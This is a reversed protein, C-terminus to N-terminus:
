VSSAAEQLMNQRHMQQQQLLHYYVQLCNSGNLTEVTCPPPMFKNEFPESSPCPSQTHESSRCEDSDIPNFATDIEPEPSASFCRVAAELKEFDSPDKILTLASKLIKANEVAVRIGCKELTSTLSENHAKLAENEEKLSKILAENEKQKLVWTFIDAKLRRNVNQLDSINYNLMSILHGILERDCHFELLSDIRNIGFENLSFQSKILEVTQVRSENDPFVLHQNTSALSKIEDLTHSMTKCSVSSPRANGTRCVSAKNVHSVFLLNPFHDRVAVYGFSM